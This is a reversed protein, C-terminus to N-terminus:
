SSTTSEILQLAEEIGQRVFDDSEQTSASKLETHAEEGGINGLAYVLWYKVVPNTEIRFRRVVAPLTLQDKIACLEQAADLRDDDNPDSLKAEVTKICSPCLPVDTKRQHSTCVVHRCRKCRYAEKPLCFKGCVYCEAPELLTINIDGGANYQNGVTQGRQDYKSM